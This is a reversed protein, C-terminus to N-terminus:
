RGLDRRLEDAYAILKPQLEEFLDKRAHLICIKKTFMKQKCEHYREIYRDLITHMEPYEIIDCYKKLDNYIRVNCEVDLPDCNM